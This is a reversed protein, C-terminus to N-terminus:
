YNEAEARTIFFHIGPACVKWRDDDFNSVEVTEGVTYIFNQDYSSCASNLTNGNPDTISLVNAKSCRCKRGTANSRKADEAIKLTVIVDIVGGVNDKAYAKKYGIFEGIEPVISLLSATLQSINKAGRLNAGFLDAGRLNAGRLNTDRMNAYRMDAGSMNAGRLDTNSLDAGFLNTDRMDAGRMDAGRLDTDRLNAGFLNTDSLDAGSLDAGSLDARAGGELNYLWKKHLDLITQLGDNTYEM